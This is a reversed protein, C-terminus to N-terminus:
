ERVAIIMMFMDTWVNTKIQIYKIKDKSNTHHYMRKNIHTYKIM